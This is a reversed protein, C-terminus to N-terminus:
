EGLQYKHYSINHEKIYKQLGSEQVEAFQYVIVRDPELCNEEAIVAVAMALIKELEM